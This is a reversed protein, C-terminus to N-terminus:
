VLGHKEGIQRLVKVYEDEEPESEDEPEIANQSKTKLAGYLRETIERYSDSFMLISAPVRKERWMGAQDDFLLRVMPGADEGYRHILAKMISFDKFPRAKYPYGFQQEFRIEFYSILQNPNFRGFPVTRSVKRVAVRHDADRDLVSM